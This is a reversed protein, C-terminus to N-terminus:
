PREIPKALQLIRPTAKYKLAGPSIKWVEDEPASTTGEKRIKVVYLKEIQPTIKYTLASKPVPRAAQLPPELDEFRRPQQLLKLIIDTAVYSKAAKSVDFNTRPGITKDRKIPEALDMYRNMNELPKWKGRSPPREKFLKKATALNEIRKAREEDTEKVKKRSSRALLAKRQQLKALKMEKMMQHKRYFFYISNITKEEQKVLNKIKKQELIDKFSKRNDFITRLHAFALQNCRTLIEPDIVLSKQILVLPGDYPPVFKEQPMKPQALQTERWIGKLKFKHKREKNNTMTITVGKVSTNEHTSEPVQTQQIAM